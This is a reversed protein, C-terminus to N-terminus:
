WGMIKNIETVTARNCNITNIYTKLRTIKLQEGILASLLNKNEMALTKWDAEMADWDSQKCLKLNWIM